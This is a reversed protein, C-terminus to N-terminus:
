KLIWNAKVAGGSPSNEPTKEWFRQRSSPNEYREIFGKVRSSVQSYMLEDLKNTLFGPSTYGTVILENRIWYKSSSSSYILDCWEKDYLELQYLIDMNVIKKFLSSDKSTFIKHDLCIQIGYKDTVMTRTEHDILQVAETRAVLDSLDKKLMHDYRPRLTFSADEYHRNQITEGSTFPDGYRYHWGYNLITEKLEYGQITLFSIDIVGSKNALFLAILFVPLLSRRMMLLFIPFYIMHMLEAVHM